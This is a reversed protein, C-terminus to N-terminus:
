VQAEAQEGDARLAEAGPQMEGHAARAAVIAVELVEGHPERTFPRQLWALPRHLPSEPRREVPLVFENLVGALGFAAVLRLLLRLVANGADLPLIAGAIILGLATLLLFAGDSEPSIRSETLVREFDLSEGTRACNSAKNAAGRHMAIRRLFKQSFAVRVALLLLACRLICGFVARLGQPLIGVTLRDLVMPLLVFLLASLAVVLGTRLVTLGLPAVELANAVVVERKSPRTLQQPQMDQTGWLVQMPRWFCRVLRAMGRLVPIRSLGDEPEAACLRVGISGDERRVAVAGQQSGCAYIGEIGPFIRLSNDQKQVRAGGRYEM